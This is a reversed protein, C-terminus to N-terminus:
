TNWAGNRLKEDPGLLRCVYMFIKGEVLSKLIVAPSDAARFDLATYGAAKFQSDFITLETM